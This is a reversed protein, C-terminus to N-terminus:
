NIKLQKDNTVILRIIQSDMTLLQNISEANDVFVPATINYHKQLITIIELGANIKAANNLDSFPVGGVTIDCCENLAGNNQIDFLKFKVLNFKTNIQSELANIKARTFLQINYEIKEIQAIESALKKMESKLDEIRKQSTKLAEQQYVEKKLEDMKLQYEGKHKQFESVDVKKFEPEKLQKIAECVKIYEMDKQLEIKAARPSNKLEELKATIESLERTCFNIESKYKEQVAKLRAGKQNIETLATAKTQNATEIIEAKKDENWEAGCTPCSLQSEDLKINKKAAFEARLENIINEGNKYMEYLEAIDNQKLKEARELKEKQNIIQLATQEIENNQNQIENEIKSRLKILIQYSENYESLAKEAQSDIKTKLNINNDVESILRELKCIETSLAIIDKAEPLFKKIEDIRVPIYELESQLKKKKASLEKNLEDISKNYILDAIEKYGEIQTQEVSPCLQFILKRKEKWQLGSFYRLNTVLKFLDENIISAMKQSFDKERMPVDNWSYITENGQFTAVEAGHAKIWKERLTRKISTEYNDILLITEVEHELMYTPVGNSDLTKIEFEAKNESNKGFLCWLFADLITTKGTANAGSIDLSRGDFNIELSKIGKFCSIKLKSLKIEM